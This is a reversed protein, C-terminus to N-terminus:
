STGRTSRSREPVKSGQLGMQVALNLAELWSFGQLGDFIMSFLNFIMSFGQVGAKKKIFDLWKPEWVTPFRRSCPRKRAELRILAALEAEGLEDREALYGEAVAIARLQLKLAVAGAGRVEFSKKEM